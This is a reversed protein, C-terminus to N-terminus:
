TGIEVANSIQDPSLNLISLLFPSDKAVQSNLILWFIIHQSLKLPSDKAAQSNLLLWFIIHQSLKLPSDKAAQSNLLLWFIIHQSLKLPSDKAAQSNWHQALMWMRKAPPDNITWKYHYKHRGGEPDPSM